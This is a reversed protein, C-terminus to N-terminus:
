QLLKKVVKRRLGHLESKKLVECFGDDAELIKIDDVGDDGVLNQLLHNILRSM